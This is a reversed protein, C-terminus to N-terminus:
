KNVIKGLERKQKTEEEGDMMDRSKPVVDNIGMGEEEKPITSKILDFLRSRGM